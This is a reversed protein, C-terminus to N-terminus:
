YVSVMDGRKLEERLSNMAVSNRDQDYRDTTDLDIIEIDYGDSEAYVDSVMGDSVLIVIRKTDM